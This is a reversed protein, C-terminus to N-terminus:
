LIGKDKQERVYRKRHEAPSTNFWRKWAKHFAAPNAFGLLWAIESISTRTERIYEGALEQRTEDLLDRFGTGEERLQRQLTWPAIGLQDAITALDPTEGQLLPTLRDKVRDGMTWHSRTKLLQRECQRALLDFMGPQAQLSIADRSPESLQIANGEAGFKVPCGFWAEFEADLGQSPYEISVRELVQQQGSVIRLFETWAALVSDVVFYNFINYPRISYFNATLGKGSMWPTGRSNHSTLVGFKILTNLGEGATPACQAALGAMGADVPRSLQGMTLGLAPNGTLRIAAEGLRMFRPISIRADPTALAQPSLGFREMLPAPNQGEAAVARALVSAYLVSLEGLSNTRRSPMRMGSINDPM